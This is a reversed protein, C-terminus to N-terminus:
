GTKNQALVHRVLGRSCGVIRAIGEQSHRRRGDTRVESALKVIRREKEDTLVERPKGTTKGNSAALAPAVRGYMKTSNFRRYYWTARRKPDRHVVGTPSEDIAQQILRVDAADFLLPPAGAFKGEYRTGRGRLEAHRWVSRADRGVARAVERIDRLEHERKYTAYEDWKSRSREHELKL